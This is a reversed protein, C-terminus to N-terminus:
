RNAGEPVLRAAAEAPRGSWSDAREAVWAALEQSGVADWGDLSARSASVHGAVFAAVDLPCGASDCMGALPSLAEAAKAPFKEAYFRDVTEGYSKYDKGAQKVTRTELSALGTLAGLLTARAASRQATAFAAAAASQDAQRSAWESSRREISDVAAAIREEADISATHLSVSREADEDAYGKRVDEVRAIIEAQMKRLSALREAKAPADAAPPPAKMKADIMDDVRDSPTLNNTPIYYRDGGEIPDLDELARVDNQSFVGINFMEKYFASRAAYDGRLLGNVNFKFQYTARREPSLLQLRLAREWRVLWPMLSYVVFDIQQADINSWTARALDGIVHPPLRLWRCVERGGFERTALLQATEPNVTLMSAKMGEELILTKYASDSGGYIAQWGERLRGAAEKSIRAPHELAVRSSMGNRFFAGCSREVAVQVGLSEAGAEVVGMGYAIGSPTRKLGPAVGVVHLMDAAPVPDFQGTDNAVLYVAAGDPLSPFYRKRTDYGNRVVNQPPIRSPHIPWLAVPHGVQDRQIEAFANGYDVQWGILLDLWTMADMGPCPEFGLMSALPDDGASRRKGDDLLEVFGLPLSAITESLVRRGAWYASLTRALEADVRIGARTSTGGGLWGGRYPLWSGGNPDGVPGLSPVLVGM